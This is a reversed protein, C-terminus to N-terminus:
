EVRRGNPRVRPTSGAEKASAGDGLALEEAYAGVAAYFREMTAVFEAADPAFQPTGLRKVPLADAVPAEFAPVPPMAGDPTRWFADVSGTFLPVARDADEAAERGTAQDDAVSGGSRRARLATAVEDGSRGRLLFILFPDTEFREGLLYHVAAVHKCPNSWDPCSCDTILDDGSAPFLAVGAAQFVTEIEQPMEGALLKAAYLAEAAMAEIVRQWEPEALHRFRISVSYPRPQSGQVTARVGDAAVDLTLVQGSRAYSRGRSLRGADVLRELAAIWRGAWWSQGFRGRQTQARIGDAPRPRPREEDYWWRGM